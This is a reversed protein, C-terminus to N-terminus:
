MTNQSKCLVRMFVHKRCIKKSLYYVTYLTKYLSPTIFTFTCFRSPCFQQFVISVLYCGGNFFAFTSTSLECFDTVQYFLRYFRQFFWVPLLERFRYLLYLRFVSTACLLYTSAFLIHYVSVLATKKFSTSYM